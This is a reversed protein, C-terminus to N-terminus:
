FPLDDALDDDNMDYGMEDNLDSNLLNNNIQEQYELWVKKIGNIVIDKKFDNTQNVFIEWENDDNYQNCCFILFLFILNQMIQDNTNHDFGISTKAERIILSIDKKLENRNRFNNFILFYPINNLNNDLKYQVFKLLINKFYSKTLLATELISDIRTM